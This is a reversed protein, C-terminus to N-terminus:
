PRTDLLALVRLTVRGLEIPQGHESHTRRNVILSNECNQFKDSPIGM